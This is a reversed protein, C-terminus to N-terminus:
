GGNLKQLARQFIWAQKRWGAYLIFQKTNNEAHTLNKISEYYAFKQAEFISFNSSGQFARCVGLCPGRARGERKPLAALHTGTTWALRSIRCPALFHARDATTALTALKYLVQHSKGECDADADKM